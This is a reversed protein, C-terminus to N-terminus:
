YRYTVSAGISLPERYVQQIAQSNPSVQTRYTTDTVNNGWVSFSWHESPTTWTARLNLLAYGDQGFQEVPDFFFKSTYFLNANLTMDGEAVMTHYTLGANATMRPSRMMRNGTADTNTATFLGYRASTPDLNQIYAIANTFRDYEAHTYAAGLTLELDRGLDASLQADLGYIQSQAANRIISQVGLFASVQIDKYDYYFASLDLRIGDGATKFGVEWADIKEPNVPTNSFSATPLVGAKYGKSYGAYINSQDTLAYRLNLRPTVSDWDVSTGDHRTGVNFSHSAEDASYRIGGTVFLRDIVEYTVDAFAAYTEAKVSADFGKVFTTGNSASYFGPYINRNHFYYLGTVWTLSSDGPKSSLNIEQSFTKNVDRYQGAFVNASTGDYDKGIDSREDRYMSLLNLDAFDFELEGKLSVADGNFTTYTPATNSTERRGTAVYVGPRVAGSSLGNYSSSVNPTPDDNDVHEYALTFRSGEGPTFLIKGRAAMKEFAAEKKGTHVNRVFGDGREYFAALDAAITDTLGTAGYVSLNARDFSSYAARAMATPTFSPARTTVLIAGGTANRGFLTGQPGKLVNVSEVSLLQFNTALGNPVYFGDIYTAVNSIAGPGALASGVGRITPQVFAGSYDLRMGPVAQPLDVVTTLGAAGLQDGTIATISAPVDELRERRKQATVIIEELVGAEPATQALVAQPMASSLLLVSLAATRAHQRLRGRYNKM